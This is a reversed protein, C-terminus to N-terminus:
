NRSEVVQLVKSAARSMNIAIEGSKVRHMPNRPPQIRNQSLNPLSPPSIDCLYKMQLNELTATSAECIIELASEDCTM